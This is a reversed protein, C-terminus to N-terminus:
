SALERSTSTRGSSARPSRSLFCAATIAGRRPASTPFTRSTRSSSGQYAEWLPMHWARDWASRRGRRARARARRQQLFRGHRRRGARSVISDHADRHGGRRRAQLAECYTLATAIVLRGEHDTDLIEVTQGSMTTVIDGPKMANGGPMNEAAPIIGVVNLPLQLLAAARL